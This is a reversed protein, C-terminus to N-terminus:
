VRNNSIRKPGNVAPPLHENGNWNPIARSCVPKRSHFVQNLKKLPVM